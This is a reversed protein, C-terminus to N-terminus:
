IARFKNAQLIRRANKVIPRFEDVPVTIGKRSPKFTPDKQTAYMQRISIYREGEILVGTVSYAKTESIRILM